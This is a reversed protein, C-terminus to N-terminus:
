HRGGSQLSRIGPVRRRLRQRTAVPWKAILEEGDFMAFLRGDRYLAEFGWSRRPIAGFQTVLVTKLEDSTVPDDSM